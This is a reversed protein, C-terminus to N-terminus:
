EPQEEKLDTFSRVRPEDAESGAAFIITDGEAIERRARLDWGPHVYHPRGWVKVASWFEEGRFGVFHVIPAPAASM